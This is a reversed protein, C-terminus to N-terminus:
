RFPFFNFFKINKPSIKWVWLYSFNQTLHGDSIYEVCKLTSIEHSEESTVELM